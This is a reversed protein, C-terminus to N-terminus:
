KNLKNLNRTALRATHGISLGKQLAESAGITFPTPILGILDAALNGTDWLADEVTEATPNQVAAQASQGFTAAALGISLPGPALTRALRLKATAGEIKITTKGGLSDGNSPGNSHGNSPGNNGNLKKLNEALNNLDEDTRVDVGPLTNPDATTDFYKQPIVKVSEEASNVTVGYDDGAIQKVRDKFRADSQRVKLKNDPDGSAGFQINKADNQDALHETQMPELGYMSAEGNIQKKQTELKKAEYSAIPTSTTDFSRRRVAQGRRNGSRKKWGGKGNKTINGPPEGLQRILEDRSKGKGLKNADRLWKTLSM